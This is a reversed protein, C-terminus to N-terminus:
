KQLHLNMIPLWKLFKPNNGAYNILGFQFGRLKDTINIGGIALGKQIKSKNMIYSVSVGNMVNSVVGGGMAIGNIINITDNTNRPMVGMFGLFLGNLTDAKAILLTFGAGNVKKQALGLVGLEMGNQKIGRAVFGGLKLGNSLSDDSAIVGISIGNIIKCASYGSINIGNVIKTNKDM